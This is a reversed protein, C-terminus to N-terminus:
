ELDKSMPLMPLPPLSLRNTLIQNIARLRNHICVYKDDRTNGIFGFMLLMALDSLQVRFMEESMRNMWKLTVDVMSEIQISDTLFAIALRFFHDGIGLRLEQIIRLQDVTVIPEPECMDKYASMYMNALSINMDKDEGAQAKEM